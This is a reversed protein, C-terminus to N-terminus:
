VFGLICNKATHRFDTDAICLHILDHDFLLDMFGICVSNDTLMM